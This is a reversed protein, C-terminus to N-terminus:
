AQEGRWRRQDQRAEQHEPDGLDKGPARNEIRRHQGHRQDCGLAAPRHGEGHAAKRERQEGGPESRRLHPEQDIPVTSVPHHRDARKQARQTQEQDHIGIM